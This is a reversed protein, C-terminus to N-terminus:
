STRGLTARPRAGVPRAGLRRPSALVSKKRRDQSPRVIRPVRAVPMEKWLALYRHSPPLGVEALRRTLDPLSPRSVSLEGLEEFFSVLGEWPDESALGAELLVCWEDLVRDRVASLLSSRDPCPRYLTAISVGAPRAIEAAGVGLGEEAFAGQASVLL